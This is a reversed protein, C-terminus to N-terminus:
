GQGCIQIDVIVLLLDDTVGWVGIRWDKLTAGQHRVEDETEWEPM